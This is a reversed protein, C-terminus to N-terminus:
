REVRRMRAAAFATMAPLRDRWSFFSRVSFAMPPGM